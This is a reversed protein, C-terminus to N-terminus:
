QDLRQDLGHAKFLRRWLHRSALVPDVRRHGFHDLVGKEPEGVSVAM